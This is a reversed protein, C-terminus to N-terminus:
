VNFLFEVIDGDQVVYDKGEVRLIGADKVAHETKFRILDDYHYVKARIFGKEFDSHIVGAAKPAKTNQKVTWARNEKGGVTFFTALDLISYGAQIVKELGSEDIGMEKSFTTREEPDDIELIENELKGALILAAASEREAYKMVEQAHRNEGEGPDAINCIYLMPKQTLLSLTRIFAAEAQTEPKLFRTPRNNNLCDILKGISEMQFRAEKDGSKALKEIKVKRKQLNELDAIMLEMNITEIDTVPDIKGHVHSINEDEFCRVVHAVASVERIHALFKNGLGEGRSAGKVLGAVDIFELTTFVTKKAPILKSITELRKDPVSVVGFNPDSATFLYNGAEVKSRTLANFITSKGVNPLGVIGCTFGM